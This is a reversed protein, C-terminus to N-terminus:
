LDNMRWWLISPTRIAFRFISGWFGAFGQSVLSQEQMKETLVRCVIIIRVVNDLHTIHESKDNRNFTHKLLVLAPILNRGKHM